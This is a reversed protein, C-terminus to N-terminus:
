NKVLQEIGEVAIQLGVCFVLFASLRNLIQEGRAGIYKLLVPTYAYSYYIVVCMCVVAAFLAGLNQFYISHDSNHGHASLTLLVSITGGGTTLPFALPYFLLDELPKNTAPSSNSSDSAANNPTLLQWGMHCILIGGALQVVPLSIGFLKFLWSGVLISSTCILFCYGAIKRVAARRAKSDLEHLYPEIIIATGIPNVPAFLAVFGIFVIHFFPLLVQM